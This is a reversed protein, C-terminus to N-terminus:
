FINKEGRPCPESLRLTNYNHVLLPRGFNYIEYGASCTKKRQLTAMYTKYHFHMFIKIVKKKLRLCLYPM